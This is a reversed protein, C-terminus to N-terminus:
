SIEDAMIEPGDYMDSDSLAKDYKGDYYRQHAIGEAEERDNAEICDTVCQINKITVEFKKM